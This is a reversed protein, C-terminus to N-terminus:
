EKFVIYLDSVGKIYLGPAIEKQLRNRM